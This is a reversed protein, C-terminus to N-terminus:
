SSIFESLTTSQKRNIFIDWWIALVLLNMYQQLFRQRQRFGARSQFIRDESVLLYMELKEKDFLNKAMDSGQIFTSIRNRLTTDNFFIALDAAGGQKRRNIIEPPIKSRLYKHHIYKTQGNNRALQGVKGRCRLNRPLQLIFNYLDRDLYPLAANVDFMEAFRSGKFLIVEHSMTRILANFVYSGYVKEFDKYKVPCVPERNWKVGCLRKILEEQFGTCIRDCHRVMSRYSKLKRVLFNKNLLRKSGAVRVAANALKAIGYRELLFPKAPVNKFGYLQDNGEGGLIVGKYGGAMKAAAYAVLLGQEALPQQLYEVAQPLEEIMGGSLIFENYDLEYKEAMKKALPIESQYLTDDTPNDFGITFSDIKGPYIERITAALGGTDTGGSLFLGINNSNKIRREISQKLLREYETVAEEESIDLSEWPYMKQKDHLSKSNIGKEDAILVDGPAMKKVNTLTTQPSPLYCYCLFSYMAATDPEPSFDTIGLLNDVSSAFYKDSYYVSPGLGHPDRVLLLRKEEKIIITYSGDVELFGDEGFELYYDLLLGATNETKDKVKGIISNKNIISGWFYLTVNNSEGKEFDIAALNKVVSNINLKEHLKPLIETNRDFSGAFLFKPHM